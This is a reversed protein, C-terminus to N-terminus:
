GAVRVGLFPCQGTAATEEPAGRIVSCIQKAPGHRIVMVESGSSLASFLCPIEEGAARYHATNVQFSGTISTGPSSFPRALM